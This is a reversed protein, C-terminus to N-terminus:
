DGIALEGMAAVKDPHKLSSQVIAYFGDLQAFFVQSAVLQVPEGLPNSSKTFSILGLEEDVVSDVDCQGHIGRPDM